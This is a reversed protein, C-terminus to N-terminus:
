IVEHRTVHGAMAVNAWFGHTQDIDYAARARCIFKPPHTSAASVSRCNSGVLKLWCRPRWARQTQRPFSQLYLGTRLSSGYTAASPRETNRTSSRAVLWGHGGGLRRSQTPEAPQYLEGVLYSLARPTRSKDKTDLGGGDISASPPKHIMFGLAAQRGHGEEREVRRKVRRSHFYLFGFLVGGRWAVTEVSIGAPKSEDLTGGAEMKDAPRTTMPASLAWNPL